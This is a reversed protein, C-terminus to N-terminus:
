GVVVFTDGLMIVHLYEGMVLPVNLIFCLKLFFWIISFVNNIVVHLYNFLSLM